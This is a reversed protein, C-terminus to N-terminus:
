EPLRAWMAAHQSFPCPNSFTRLRDPPMAIRDIRYSEGNRVEGPEAAYCAPHAPTGVETPSRLYRPLGAWCFFGGRSWIWWVAVLGIRSLVKKHAIRDCGKVCVVILTGGHRRGRDLVGM